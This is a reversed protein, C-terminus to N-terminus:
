AFMNPTHIKSGRLQPRKQAFGLVSLGHSVSNDGSRPLSLVPFRTFVAAPRRQVARTGKAFVSMWLTKYLVHKKCANQIYPTTGTESLFFSLSATHFPLWDAKFRGRGKGREREFFINRLRESSRPGNDELFLNTRSVVIDRSGEVGGAGSFVSKRPRQAAHGEEPKNYMSKRNKPTKRSLYRTPRGSGGCAWISSRRASEEVFPSQLPPGTGLGHRGRSVVSPGIRTGPTRKGRCVALPVAQDRTYFKLGPGEV